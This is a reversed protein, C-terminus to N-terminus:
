AAAAKAARAESLLRRARVWIELRQAAVLGIAFVLFADTVVAVDLHLSSAEATLLARLAIRLALLGILLYLGAPSTKSTLAHTQPDITVATFRGRWYGIAAGVVFAPILWLWGAGSIPTQSLVLGGIVLLLSPTIWLWEIRLTRARGARRIRWVILLAVVALTILARPSALHQPDFSTM